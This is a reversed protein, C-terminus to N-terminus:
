RFYNLRYTLQVSNRSTDWIYYLLILPACVKWFILAVGETTTVYLVNWISPGRIYPIVKPLETVYALQRWPNTCLQILYKRTDTSSKGFFFFIFDYHIVNAKTFQM